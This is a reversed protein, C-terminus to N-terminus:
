NQWLVCSVITLIMLTNVPTGNRSVIGKLCELRVVKIEVEVLREVDLISYLYSSVLLPDIFYM